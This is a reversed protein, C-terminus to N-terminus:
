GLAFYGLGYRKQALLRQKEEKEEREHALAATSTGEKLAQERGARCAMTLRHDSHPPPHLGIKVSLLSFSFLPMLALQASGTM